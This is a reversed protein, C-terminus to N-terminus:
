GSILWKDAGSASILRIDAVVTSQTNQNSSITPIHQSNTTPLAMYEFYNNTCVHMAFRRVKVHSMCKYGKKLAHKYLKHLQM